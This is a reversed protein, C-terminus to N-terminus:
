FITEGNLDTGLIDSAYNFFPRIRKFTSNVEKLFGPSLVEKDSFSHEFWYQKYRLLAIAPHDSSFGQPATKVKEGQMEGFSSRVARSKLLRRWVEYNDRIDLRMRKLDAPNPYAFGCGIRSGGPKIWLYYGGRLEPKRRRLYGAFRPNYPRKDEAFRVDNYIRYLAKRGSPTEILDHENMTAILSDFFAEVNEKAALYEGKHAEFWNRSNNRSLDKLFTLTSKSIISM